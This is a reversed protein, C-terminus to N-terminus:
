AADHDEQAARRLGQWLQPELDELQHRHVRRGRLGHRGRWRELTRKSWGLLERAEALSWHWRALLERLRARTM